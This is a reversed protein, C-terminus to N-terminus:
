QVKHKPKKFNSSHYTTFYEALLLVKFFYWCLIEHPSYKIM